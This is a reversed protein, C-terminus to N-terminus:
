QGSIVLIRWGIGAAIILSAFLRGLHERIDPEPDIIVRTIMATACFALMPLPLESTMMVEVGHLSRGLLVSIPTQHIAPLFTWLGQVFAALVFLGSISWIWRGVGWSSAPRGRITEIAQGVAGSTALGVLIAGAMVRLWESPRANRASIGGGFAIWERRVLAFCIACVIVVEILSGIGITPFRRDMSRNPITVDGRGAVM